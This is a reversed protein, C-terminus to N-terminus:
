RRTHGIRVSDFRRYPRDHDWGYWGQRDTVTERYAITEAPDQYVVTVPWDARPVDDAFLGGEDPNFVLPADPPTTWSARVPQSDCCGPLVTALLAFLLAAQPGIEQQTREVKSLVLEYLAGGILCSDQSSQASQRGGM